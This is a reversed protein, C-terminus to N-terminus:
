DSPSRNAALLLDDLLLLSTALMCLPRDARGAGTGRRSRTISSTSRSCRTRTRTASESGTASVERAISCRETRPNKGQSIQALESRIEIPRLGQLLVTVTATPLCVYTLLRHSEDLTVSDNPVDSPVMDEFAAQTATAGETPARSRLVDLWRGRQRSLSAIHGYLSTQGASTTRPLSLLGRAMAETRTVRPARRPPRLWLSGGSSHSVLRARDALTGHDRGEKSHYTADSLPDRRGARCIWRRSWPTRNFIVSSSAAPDFGTPSWPSRGYRKAFVHLTERVAGEGGDCGRGRPRGTRLRAHEAVSPM